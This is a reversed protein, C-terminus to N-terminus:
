GNCDECTKLIDKAIEKHYAGIAVDKLTIKYEM